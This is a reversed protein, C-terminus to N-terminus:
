APGPPWRGEQLVAFFIVPATRRPRWRRRLDQGHQRRLPLPSRFRDTRRADRQARRHDTAAIRRTPSSRCSSPAANSRRSQSLKQSAAVRLSQQAEELQPHLRRFIIAPCRLEASHEPGHFLDQEPQLLQQERRDCGDRHQRYVHVDRYHANVCLAGGVAGCARDTAPPRVPNMTGVQPKGSINRASASPNDKLQLDSPEGTFVRVACATGEDLLYRAQRAPVTLPGFPQARGQRRDAQGERAPARM